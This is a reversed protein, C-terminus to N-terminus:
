ERRRKWKGRTTSQEHIGYDLPIEVRLQALWMDDARKWSVFRM